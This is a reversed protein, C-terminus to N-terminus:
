EAHFLKKEIDAILEGNYKFHEAIYAPGHSLSKKGSVAKAFATMSMIEGKYKVKNKGCVTCRIRANEAYKLTAGEPIQWDEFTQNKTRPKKNNKRVKEEIMANVKERLSLLYKENKPYASFTIEGDADVLALVAEKGCLKEALALARMDALAEAFAVLRLSRYPKGGPAPYVSFADGAPSFADGDTIVFPNIERKSFRTYYFNYGWHLFGAINYKWMQAGIIRTRALPMDIFRNSVDKWQGCCYYTWLNEINADLFPEIRDSAPIPNAVVGSEYFDFDSLADYVPYGDLLDAIKSKVLKYQELHKVGPEDSIHFMLRKEIGLAKAERLLACIFERLFYVYEEGAADTEWGFIRTYEGGVTAMVKPAHYAGWQTFFHSIEFTKVGLKECLAAFRRFKEFGFVYGNETKEVDVLQFTPREGGVATDLPPTFVPTLVTNIGHAVAVSLYSEIAKWHEESFIELGHASAICDYHVWQTVSIEQAPLVAECVRLTLKETIEEGEETQFGIEIEYDKAEANEPIHVTCYISCLSGKVIQVDEDAEMPILLDPYLGPKKRLYNEDNREPYCPLRVPVHEIREFSVELSSRCILKGYECLLWGKDNEATYALTFHFDEGRLCSACSLANKENINEDLFCKELSSLIKIQSSM